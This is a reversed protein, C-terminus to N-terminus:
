FAFTYGFSVAGQDHSGVEQDYEKTQRRFEYSIRFGSWEVEIGFRWTGVWPRPDLALDEAFLPGHLTFDHLVGRGGLGALVHTRVGPRPQEAWPRRVRPLRNGLRLLLEGNVNTFANGLRAGVRASGDVELPGLRAFGLRRTRDVDLQLVPQFDLQQGWGIADAEDLLVHTGRQTEEGLAPPGITGLFLSLRALGDRRREPEPDLVARLRDVSLGFLATFPRQDTPPTALAFDRPTYVRQTVVFVHDESTAREPGITVADLFALPSLATRAVDRAADDGRAAAEVRIGQTYDRDRGAGSSFQDNEETLAVHRTQCATCALLALLAAALQPPSTETVPAAAGPRPDM